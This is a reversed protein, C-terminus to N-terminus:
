IYTSIIKTIDPIIYQNIYSERQSIIDKITEIDKELNTHQELLNIYNPEDELDVNKPTSLGNNIIFVQVTNQGNKRMEAIRINANNIREQNDKYQKILYNLYDIGIYGILLDFIEKKYEPPRNYPDGLYIRVDLAWNLIPYLFDKKFNKKRYAYEIIIQRIENTINIEKISLPRLYKLLIDLRPKTYEM